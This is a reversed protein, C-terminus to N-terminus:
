RPEEAHVSLPQGWVDIALDADRYNARVPLDLMALAQQQVTEGDLPIDATTGRWNAIVLEGGPRLRRRVARLTALLEVGDMFYGVESVVILDYDEDPIDRPAAGLIWRVTPWQLAAVRLADASADLGVVDDALDRLRSSLQGSACGIELVRQYRERGLCALLLQLRRREYHSADLQWPDDTGGDYMADFPEAVASRGRGISQANAVRAALAPPRPVLVTEIVRRARNLVASGVIPHGDEAVLQSRHCDIADRKARLGALSPALTRVRSWDVDPPAAWHWWWVPYLLVAAGLEMAVAEAARAVAEHDAHGDHEVPAFILTADDALEALGRRLEPEAEALGGDPLDWWVTAIRPSLSAIAGDGELRRVSSRSGHTAVVVTLDVDACALDHVTAGLALSEDDPHPAILIVRPYRAVVDALALRPVDDWAGDLLWTAEDTGSERHTFARAQARSSVQPRATSM